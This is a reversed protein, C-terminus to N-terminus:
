DEEKVVSLNYWFSKNKDITNAVLMASSYCFQLNYGGTDGNIDLIEGIAYVNDFKKLKMTKLDVEDLDIGGATVISNRFGGTGSITYEANKLHKILKSFDNNSIRSVKQNGNINLAFVTKSVFSKPLDYIESIYNTLSKSVGDRKPTEGNKDIYSIVLNGGPVAFESLRLISPGSFGKHTLLLDGSTEKDDIKISVNNFSIGSLNKYTYNEVFVPTLAPKLEVIKIGKDELLKLLYGDSGTNPYSKGGTAIVINNTYYTDNETKVIGNEIDIAKSGKLLEFGNKYVKALLADLIDKSKMSKPFVKNDERVILPVGLDEAYKMFEINNHKYLAKRIRKGNEGYMKPFEKIDGMRTINCSGAGTILLKNGLSKQSEIILGKNVKIASALLLGAAGGGIIIMDYKM